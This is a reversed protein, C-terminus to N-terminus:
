KMTKYCCPLCKGCDTEVSCPVCSQLGCRFRGARGRGSEVRERRGRKMKIPRIGLSASQALKRARDTEPRLSSKPDPGSQSSLVDARPAPAAVQSSLQEASASLSNIPAQAATTVLPAVLVKYTTPVQLNGKQQVQVTEDLNSKKKWLLFKQNKSSDLLVNELESYYGTKVVKKPKSTAAQKPKNKSAKRISDENLRSVKSANTASLPLLVEKAPLIDLHESYQVQALGTDGVSGQVAEISSVVKIQDSKKSDNVQSKVPIVFKIPAKLNGGGAITFYEDKFNMLCHEMKAHRKISARSTYSKECFICKMVPLNLKPLIDSNGKSHPQVPKAQKLSLTYYEVTVREVSHKEQVHKRVGHFSSYIAKCLKCSYKVKVESSSKKENYNKGSENEFGEPKRMESEPEQTDSQSVQQRDSRSSVGESEGPPESMSAVAAGKETIGPRQWQTIRAIHNVYYTRKNADQSEEWGAPLALSHNTYGASDRGGESVEEEEGGGGGGGPAGEKGGGVGGEASDLMEWGPEAQSVESETQGRTLSDQLQQYKDGGNEMKVRGQDVPWTAMDRVYGEAGGISQPQSEQVAFM